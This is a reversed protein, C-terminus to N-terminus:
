ELRVLQPIEVWNIDDFHLSFVKITKNLDFLLSKSIFFYFFNWASSSFKVIPSLCSFIQQFHRERWLELLVLRICEHKGSLSWILFHSKSPLLSREESIRWYRWRLEFFLHRWISKISFLWTNLCRSWSHLILNFDRVNLLFFFTM